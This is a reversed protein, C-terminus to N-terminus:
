ERPKESESEMECSEKTESHLSVRGVKYYLPILLFRTSAVAGTPGPFRLKTM